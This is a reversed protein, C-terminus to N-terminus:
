VGGRFTSNELARSNSLKKYESDKILRANQWYCSTIFCVMCVSEKGKREVTVRM